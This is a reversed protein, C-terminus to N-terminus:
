EQKGLAKILMKRIRNHMNAYQIRCLEQERESMADYEDAHREYYFDTLLDLDNIMGEICWQKPSVKIGDKNIM